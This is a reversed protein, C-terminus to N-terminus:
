ARVAEEVILRIGAIKPLLEEPFGHRERLYQPTNYSVFVKGEADEWVLSKLPLDLALTPAAVMLPTGARANGFIVLKTPRMELGMATAAGSHDIRALIPIGLSQLVAGLRELTEEVSYPSARHVMGHGSDESM